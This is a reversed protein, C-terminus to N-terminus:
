ADTSVLAEVAARDKAAFTWRSGAGKLPQPLKAADDGAYMKRFRARVAKPDKEMERAIDALKITKPTQPAAEKAAKTKTAQAKKSMTVGELNINLTDPTTVRKVNGTM